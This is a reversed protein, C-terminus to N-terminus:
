ADSLVEDTPTREPVADPDVDWGSSQLLKRAEPATLLGQVFSDIIQQRDQSSARSDIRGIEAETDFLDPFQEGRVLLNLLTAVSLQKKDVLRSFSDITPGDIPMLEFDTSLAIAGISEDPIGEFKGAWLVVSNIADQLQDVLSKIQSANQAGEIQKARGSEQFDKEATLSAIAYRSMSAAIEHERASLSAYDDPPAAWMANAQPNRFAYAENSGPTMKKWEDEEVGAVFLLKRQATLYLSHDTNASAKYHQEQLEALALTPSKCGFTGIIKVPIENQNRLLMPETSVWANKTQRTTEETYSQKEWFEVTVNGQLDDNYVRIRPSIVKGFAGYKRSQYEVLRVHTLVKRNQVIEYVVDILQTHDFFHVTARPNLIEKAAVTLGDPVVPYDTLIAAVGYQIVELLLARLFRPLPLGEGDVDPVLYQLAENLDETNATKRTAYSAVGNTLREYIPTQYAQSLRINYPALAPDPCSAPDCEWPNRPLVKRDRLEQSSALANDITQWQRAALLYENAPLSPDHNNQYVQPDSFCLSNNESLAM